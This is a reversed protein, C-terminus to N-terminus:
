PKDEEDIQLASELDYAVVLRGISSRFLLNTYRGTKPCIEIDRTYGVVGKSRDYESVRTSFEKCYGRKHQAKTKM